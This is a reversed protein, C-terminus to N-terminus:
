LAIYKRIRSGCFISVPVPMNRIIREALARAKGSQGFGIETGEPVDKGSGLAWQVWFLPYPEAGWQSKFKYTGEEPASRGFDFVEYENDAAYELFSWYLLMNPNFHNFRRLSSAWPISVTRKHCLIIGCAAPSGDPLFVVGCIARPGYHKLIAQIWTKSHVPSGLDRMNEAFVVYFTHLLEQGGFKVYLGDRMPKRVQSRLKAKFTALLKESGEPLALLLRVKGHPPVNATSQSSDSGPEQSLATGSRVELKKFGREFALDLANFLLSKRISANDALVGAADCYPLSVLRNHIGLPLGLHVLPLIGCIRDEKEALFYEGSFKYAEEVARKWSYLHYALGQAHALVYEDWRMQDRDDALRITVGGTNAPNKTFM